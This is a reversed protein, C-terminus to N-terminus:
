PRAFEAFGSAEGTARIAKVGWMGQEHRDDTYGPETVTTLKQWAADSEPKYYLEYKVVDLEANKSWTLFTGQNRPTAAFDTPANPSASSEWDHMFVTRFYGTLEPVEDIKLALERAYRFSNESGNVSSIVVAGDVILSKNHYTRGIGSGDMNILRAELKLNEKKALDNLYKVVYHNDRKSDLKISKRDLILKVAVGRRAAEVIETLYPQPYKTFNQEDAAAGWWMNIYNANILLEQKANHILGLFGQDRDMTNDPSVIRTVTAKGTVTLPAPEVPTYKFCPGADYTDPQLPRDLKESYPRVQAHGAGFDFDWLDKVLKVVDGNGEIVVGWERNGCGPDLAYNSSIWNGSDVLVTDDDFLAYKSHVPNVATSLDGDWKYYYLVEVGGKHLIEQAEKDSDFMDAGGPNREMGLQVRVGRKVAAVLRNALEKNNFQYGVLRISKKAKEVLAFLAPGANDPASIATLTMPGSVSKVPLDSQGAFFVRQPNTPTGGSWSDARSELRWGQGQKLRTIVQNAPTLPFSNVLQVPVGSWPAPPTGVKGYVLIDVPKAKEDLVRVVDGEDNLVPLNGDPLKLDPVAKDTDAGYEFTPAFNWYKKFYEASHALYIVQGPQFNLKPLMLKGAGTTVTWNGLTHPKSGINMLAIMEGEGPDSVLKSKDRAVPLVEYIRIDNAAEKDGNDACGASLPVLLTLAILAALFRRQV